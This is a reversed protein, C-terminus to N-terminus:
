FISFTKPTKRSSKKSSSKSKSKSRSFHKHKKNIKYVPYTKHTKARRHRRRHTINSSKEDITLPIILEDHPSPSSLYDTSSILDDISVPDEELLYEPKVPTPPPLEIKYEEVGQTLNKFDKKLRKHLPIDISSINLLNALDENNLKVDFHQKNGDTSTTVAINANNGDYDADWNLENFHNENNNHIITQTTGRNKIYTNLM